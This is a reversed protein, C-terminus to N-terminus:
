SSHLSELVKSWTQADRAAIRSKEMLSDYLTANMNAALAKTLYEKVDALARNRKARVQELTIQQQRTM